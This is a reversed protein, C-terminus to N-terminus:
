WSVVGVQVGVYGRPQPVSYDAAMLPGGNDGNCANSAGNSPATSKTQFTCFMSEFISDEYSVSLGRTDECDRNDEIRVITGQLTSNPAYAISPSSDTDGVGIVTLYELSTPFSSNSNLSVIPPNPGAPSALKVVKFDYFLTVDDFSPHNFFTDIDITENVDTSSYYGVEASQGLSSPAPVPHSCPM